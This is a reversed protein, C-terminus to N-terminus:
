GSGNRGAPLMVYFEIFKMHMVLADAKSTLVEAPRSDGASQNM